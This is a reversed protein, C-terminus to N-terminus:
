SKIDTLCRGTAEGGYTKAFLLLIERNKILVTAIQLNEM